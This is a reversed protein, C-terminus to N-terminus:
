IGSSLFRFCFKCINNGQWILEILIEVCVLSGNQTPEVLSCSDEEIRIRKSRKSENTVKCIHAPTSNVLNGMQSAANLSPIGFNNKNQLLQSHVTGLNTEVGEQSRM